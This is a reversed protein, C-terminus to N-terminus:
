DESKVKKNLSKIAEKAEESVEKRANEEAEMTLKFVEGVVNADILDLGGGAETWWSPAEVIRVSLQGFMIAEGNLNSEAANFGLLQRRLEDVRFLDRRSIFTKVTFKGNYLRGTTEGNTSISFTATTQM